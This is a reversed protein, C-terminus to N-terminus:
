RGPFPLSTPYWALPGGRTVTWGGGAEQDGSGTIAWIQSRTGPSTGTVSAELETGV